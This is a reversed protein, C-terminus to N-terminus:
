VLLLFARSPLVKTKRNWRWTLLLAISIMGVELVYFLWGYLPEQGEFFLHAWLNALSHFAVLFWINYDWHVFIWAALSAFLSMVLMVELMGAFLSLGTEKSQYLHGWAFPLANMM